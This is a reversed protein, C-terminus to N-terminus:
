KKAEREAKRELRQGPASQEVQLSASETRLSPAPEPESGRNASVTRSAPESGRNASVQPQNLSASETRVGPAPEWDQRQVPPQNGTKANYQADSAPALRKSSPCTFLKVDRLAATNLSLKEYMSLSTKQAHALAHTGGTKPTGRRLRQCLRQRVMSHLRHRGM